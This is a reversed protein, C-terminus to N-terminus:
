AASDGSFNKKLAFSLGGFLIFGAGAFVVMFEVPVESYRISIHKSISEADEADGSKATITVIGATDPTWKLIGDDGTVGVSKVEECASNPRFKCSVKVGPVPENEREIKIVITEGQKVVDPNMSMELGAASSNVILIACIILMKLCFYEASKIDKFHNRM